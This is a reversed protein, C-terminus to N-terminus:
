IRIKELEKIIQFFRRPNRLRLEILKEMDITLMSM